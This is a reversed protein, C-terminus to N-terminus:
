PHCTGCRWTRDPRQVWTPEHRPNPCDPPRSRPTPVPGRPAPDPLRHERAGGPDAADHRGDEGISPATPEIPNEHQGGPGELGSGPAQPKPTPASSGLSDPAADGASGAVAQSPGSERPPLVRLEGLLNTTTGTRAFWERVLPLFDDSHVRYCAAILNRQPQRRVRVGTAQEYGHVMDDLLSPSPDLHRFEPGTAVRALTEETTWRRTATARERLSSTSDGPAVAVRTRAYSRSQDM